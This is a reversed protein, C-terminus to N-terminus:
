CKGFPRAQIVSISCHCFCIQFPLYSSLPWLSGLIATTAPHWHSHPIWFPYLCFGCLDTQAEQAPPSRPGHSSTDNPGTSSHCPTSAERPICRVYYTFGHIQPCFLGSSHGLVSMYCGRMFREESQGLSWLSVADQWSVKVESSNSRFARNPLFFWWWSRDMVM